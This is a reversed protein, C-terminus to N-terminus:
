PRGMGAERDPGTRAPRARGPGSHDDRRPPLTRDLAVQLSRGRAAHGDARKVPEQGRALAVCAGAREPAEGEGREQMEAHIRDIRLESPPHTEQSIFRFPVPRDNPLAYSELFEALMEGQGLAVAYADAAHERSRWYAAWVFGLLRLALGGRAIWWILRLFGSALRALQMALPMWEGGPEYYWLLSQRRRRAGEDEDEAVRASGKFIMLRNLAASIRGDSSQLHGLEHALVAELYETELLGRSLAISRGCACADADRSDFVFWSSPEPIPEASQSRLSEMAEEFAARERASPPRGGMQARWWWGGGWVGLVAALSWLSPLLAAMWLGEAFSPLVGALQALALPFMLMLIRVFAAPLECAFTVLYLGLGSDFLLEHLRPVHMLRSLGSREYIAGPLEGLTTERWETPM